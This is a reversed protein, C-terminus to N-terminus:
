DESDEEEDDSKGEYPLNPWYVVIGLGMSDQSPAGMSYALDGDRSCVELAIEWVSQSRDELNVAVCTKGYMGRGSYAYPEYGIDELIESLAKALEQNDSM